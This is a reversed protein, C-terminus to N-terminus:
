LLEKVRDMKLNIGRHEPGQNPQGREELTLWSAPLKDGLSIM